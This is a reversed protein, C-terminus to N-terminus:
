VLNASSERLMGREGPVCVLSITNYPAKVQPVQPSSPDVISDYAYVHSTVAREIPRKKLYPIWHNKMLTLSGVLSIVKPAGRQQDPSLQFKYFNNKSPTNLIVTM